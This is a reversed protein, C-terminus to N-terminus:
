LFPGFPNADTASAVRRHESVMRGSVEGRVTTWTHSRVSCSANMTWARSTSSRRRSRGDSMPPSPQRQRHCARSPMCRNSSPESQLSSTTPIACWGDSPKTGAPLSLPRPLPRSNSTFSPVFRRNVCEIKVFLTEGVGVCDLRRVAGDPGDWETVPAHPFIRQRKELNNVYRDPHPELRGSFVLSWNTRWVPREPLLGEMFREAPKHLDEAYRGVKAHLEAMSFQEGIRKPVDGFSFCVCAAVSRYTGTHADHGMLILDEACLRAARELPRMSVNDSLLENILHDFRDPFRSRMHNAVMDLVEAQAGLTRPESDQLVEPRRRRDALMEQKAAMQAHYSTPGDDDVLLWDRLDLGHLGPHLKPGRRTDILTNTLGAQLWRLGHASPQGHGGVPMSPLRVPKPHSRASVHPM